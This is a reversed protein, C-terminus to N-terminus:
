IILLVLLIASFLCYTQNYPYIERPVPKKILNFKRISQYICFSLILITTCELAICIRVTTYDDGHIGLVFDVYSMSATDNKYKSDNM